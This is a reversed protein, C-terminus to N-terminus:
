LPITSSDMRCLHTLGAFAFLLAVYHLLLYVFRLTWNVYRLQLTVYHFVKGAYLLMLHCVVYRSLNDCFSLQKLWILCGHREM